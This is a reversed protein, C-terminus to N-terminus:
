THNSFANSMVRAAALPNNCAAQTHKNHVWTRVSKIIIKRYNIKNETHQTKKLKLKHRAKKIPM